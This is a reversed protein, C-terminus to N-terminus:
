GVGHGRCEPHVALKRFGAWERPLGLGELSADAYFMVSGAIRGGIECVLLEADDAQDALNRLDAVYAAFIAAPVVDRYQAYAAVNLEEIDRVEHGHAPRISIENLSIM